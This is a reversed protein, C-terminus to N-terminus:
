RPAGISATRLAKALAAPERTCGTMRSIRSTGITTATAAQSPTAHTYQSVQDEAMWDRTTSWVAYEQVARQSRVLAAPTTATTTITIRSVGAIMM